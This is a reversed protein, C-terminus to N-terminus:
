PVNIQIQLLKMEAESFVHNKYSFLHSNIHNVLYTAPSASLHYLKLKM